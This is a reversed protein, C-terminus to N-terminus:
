LTQNERRGEAMSIYKKVVYSGAPWLALIGGAWLVVWNDLWICLARYRSPGDNIWLFTMMAAYGTLSAAMGILHPFTPQRSFRNGGGRVRFLGWVVVATIGIIFLASLAVAAVFAILGDLNITIDSM